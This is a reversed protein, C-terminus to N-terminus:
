KANAILSIMEGNGLELAYDGAAKNSSDKRIVDMGEDIMLKVLPVNGSLVAYILGTRGMMDAHNLFAGERTLFKAIEFNGIKCAVILANEGDKDVFDIDALARGDLLHKVIGMEGLRVAEILLMNRSKEKDLETDKSKSLLMGVIRLQRRRGTDDTKGIQMLVRESEHEWWASGSQKVAITDCYSTWLILLSCVLLMTVSIWFNIQSEGYKKLPNGVHGDSLGDRRLQREKLTVSRVVRAIYVLLSAFSVTYGAVFAGFLWSHSQCCVTTACVLFIVVWCILSVMGILINIRSPSYPGGHSSFINEDIEVDKLRGLFNELNDFGFGMVSRIDTPLKGSEDKRPEKGKPLNFANIAVEYQEYWAKSGKMMFIWLLSSLVGLASVFTLVPRTWWYSNWSLITGFMVVCSVLFGVLFSSRHWFHELEFDRCHWLNKYVDHMTYEMEDSTQKTEM